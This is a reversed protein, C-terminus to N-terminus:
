KTAIGEVFTTELLVYDRLPEMVRVYTNVRLMVYPGLFPIPAVFFAAVVPLVLHPLRHPLLLRM